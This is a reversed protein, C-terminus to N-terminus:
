TLHFTYDIFNSLLTLMLYSFCVLTSRDTLVIESYQLGLLVVLVIPATSRCCRSLKELLCLIKHYSSVKIDKLGLLHM